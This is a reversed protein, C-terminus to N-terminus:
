SYPACCDACWVNEGKRRWEGDGFVFPDLAGAPLVRHVHAADRPAGRPRPAVVADLPPNVFVPISVRLRDLSRNVVRHPTAVLEGGTQAEVLEGLNVVLADARPEVPCWSGDALRLELGGREDEALLTVLSYNVHAAVGPRAAERSPQPHYGILKMILYPEGGALAGDLGLTALLRRGLAATEDLHALLVRRLEPNGAPWQNPGLLRLYARGGDAGPEVPPSERGLHLQERWDRENRMESFGRHHPSRAIDLARKEDLPLAFFRAAAALARRMRAAEDPALRWQFAGVERCARAIAEPAAGADLLPIM